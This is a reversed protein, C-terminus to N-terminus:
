PTSVGGACSRNVFVFLVHADGCWIGFWVAVRPAYLGYLVYTSREAAKHETSVWSRLVLAFTELQSATTAALFHSNLAITAGQVYM